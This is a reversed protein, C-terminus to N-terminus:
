SPGRGNSDLYIYRSYWIERASPGGAVLLIPFAKLDNWKEMRLVLILINCLFPHCSVNTHLQTYLIRAVANDALAHQTQRQSALVMLGYLKNASSHCKPFSYPLSNIVLWSCYAPVPWIGTVGPQTIMQRKGLQLSELASIWTLSWHSLKHTATLWCSSLRPSCHKSYSAQTKDEAKVTLVQKCERAFGPTWDM